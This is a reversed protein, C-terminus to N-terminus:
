RGLISKVVFQIVFDFGALILSLVVVAIMVVWTTRLAEQRTPWVVKRLEFRSEALFERTQLGKASTFFVVLGALLGAVVLLARLPGAWQDFWIYGFVGAAVLAVALVYKVIDGASASNHQEVKSNM